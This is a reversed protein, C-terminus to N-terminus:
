NHTEHHTGEPDNAFATDTIHEDLDKQDKAEYGCACRIMNAEMAKIADITNEIWQKFTSTDGLKEPESM